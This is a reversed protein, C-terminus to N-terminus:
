KKQQMKARIEADQTRFKALLTDFAAKADANGFYVGQTQVDLTVGTGVISRKFVAPYEPQGPKTFFYVSNDAPVEIRIDRPEDFRRIDPMANVSQWISEFTPADEAALAAGVSLTLGAAAALM